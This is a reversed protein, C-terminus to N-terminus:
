KNLAKNIYDEWLENKLLKSKYVEVHGCRPLSPIVEKYYEADSKSMWPSLTIRRVARMDLKFSISRTERNFQSHILRFEKEDRYSYRKLYPIKKRNYKFHQYRMDAQTIYTVDDYEIKRPLSSILRNKDFTICAGSKGYAYIRWHHFTECVGTLCLVHISKAGIQQKYLKLAHKDSLDPWKDPCRMTISQQQLQEILFHINTYRRVFM